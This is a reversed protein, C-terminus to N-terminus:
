RSTRARRSAAARRAHRALDPSPLYYTPNPLKLVTDAYGGQLDSWQDGVNLVIDYGLDKEIHKRTGAKYEVTTCKPRRAPSTRRSRTPAPRDVQHLLQRRQVAHLRGQRPQRAHGGEPQRQPRHPRLDHLGDGAAKNVFGVMAPRPRSASTRCGCTRCPPTSSSTCRRTRWTTPGCRRTTPTSARHGAEPAASPRPEVRPRPLAVPRRRRDAEDRSIYPSANKNPSAPRRRRRLLHPDDVEGLRHQPHRRRGRAARELRRSGDHLAHAARATAAPRPAQGAYAPATLAAALLAAAALAAALSTRPHRLPM